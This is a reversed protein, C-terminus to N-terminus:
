SAKKGKKGDKRLENATVTLNERHKLFTSVRQIQVNNLKVQKERNDHQQGGTHELTHTCKM